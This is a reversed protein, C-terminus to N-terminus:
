SLAYKLKYRSLLGSAGCEDACQTAGGCAGRNGWLHGALMIIARRIDAPVNAASAGYGAVYTLKWPDGFRLSGPAHANSNFVMRPLLDNDYGELYYNASDYLTEANYLDVYYVSTISSVPGHDFEIHSLKGTLLSMPGMRYGEWWADDGNDQRDFTKAYGILTQNILKRSTIREVMERADTIYQTLLTDEATSTVRLSAKLETLTIPEVAPGSTVKSKM